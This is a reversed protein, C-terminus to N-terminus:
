AASRIADALADLEVIAADVGRKRELFVAELGEHDVGIGLRDGGVVVRAVLQIELREGEFVDQVNVLPFFAPAGDRLEAPLRREIQRESQLLVANVDDARRRLANFDGFVALEEGRQQVLQLNR